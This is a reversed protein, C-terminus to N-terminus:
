SGLMIDAFFRRLWPMVVPFSKRLQELAKWDFSPSPFVGTAGATARHLAGHRPANADVTVVLAGVGLSLATDLQQRSSGDDNALVYVQFPPPHRAAKWVEELGVSAITPVIFRSQVKEAARIAAWWAEPKMKKTLVDALQKDTPVWHLPPKCPKDPRVSVDGYLKKWQHKAEVLLSQRIAALDLALRQSAKKFDGDWSQDQEGDLDVNAWAADHYALFIMQDEPVRKLKIGEHKHNKAADVIRNTDKIDGVTPNGQVRQAQSVQFQLDARTQKALWSLCGITTRNREVLDPPAQDENRLHSPVTIRELRSEAYGTQTIVVEDASVQYECGIYEFKDSEWDDVPFKASIQKKVEDHLGPEAMVLLDDVHTLIMGCVKNKDDRVRFVCPDIENQELVYIRNVYNIKIDLLDSSLKLWWLKPSTSLGFVGKLIEVLQWRMAIGDGSTLEWFSDQFGTDLDLVLKGPVGAWAVWFKYFTEAVVHAHRSELPVVVQYSSAVDVMNLGLHNKTQATDIFIIDVAVAENFDLLASPKAVRHAQPRSCRACTSCKLNQAAAIMEKNAGGLTLHRVLERNSPHGLNQHLRRLAGAIKGSVTGKFSIESAGRKHDDDVEIEVQATDGKEVQHSSVWASQHPLAEVVKVVKEAFEDPYVGSRKTDRAQVRAHDHEGDCQSGLVEMFKVHTSLLTMSKRLYKEPEVASRLGYSCMDFSFKHTYEDESWRKIEPQSWLDSTTPNELVVHKGNLRQLLFVEDIMALFDKEEDIMALFDKEKRRLRRREQKTYNLRSFACWKTCPMGVWVLDPKEEKIERYVEDRVAPDHLDDGYKLDRPRLVGHRRRGAFAKSIAAEGAFLELCRAEGSPVHHSSATFCTWLDQAPEVLVEDAFHGITAACALLVQCLQGGMHQLKRKTSSNMKRRRMGDRAKQRPSRMDVSGESESSWFSSWPWKGGGQGEIEDAVIDNEPMGLGIAAKYELVADNEFKSLGVTDKYVPVEDKDLTGHGIM